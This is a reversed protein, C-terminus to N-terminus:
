KGVQSSIIEYYTVAMTVVTTTIVITKLWYEVRIGMFREHLLQESWPKTLKNELKSEQLYELIKQSLLTGTEDIRMEVKHQLMAAGIGYRLLEDILELM